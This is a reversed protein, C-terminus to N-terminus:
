HSNVFNIAYQADTYFENAKLADQFATLAAAKDGKRYLAWGRWLLNEESNPTIKLAYETLALLDDNRNTKFYAIFPGFQYRLMRQPLNKERATDYAKAAEHYREFYVLNTGYNFWAFGDNITETEAKATELALRRSEDEDWRAGMISKVTEEQDPRYVVIFVRNFSRWEADVKDYTAKINPGFWADQTTFIKKEDNYGTLLLYHGSWRDDGPWYSEDFSSSKEIMIPIGAAIFAKLLDITGGVRYETKLWGAQTRTFYLLEDVNVNRDQLIPKILKTIDYQTGTWGYFRLYMGLTDPGCNNQDQKEYEPAPLEAQPPLPTPTPTITPTFTITPTPEGAPLATPSPAATPTEEPHHPKSDKGREKYILRPPPLATPMQGAPNTVGRYYASIEEIKWNVISNVSPVQYILFAALALVLITGGLLLPWNIKFGAPLTIRVGFRSFVIQQNNNEVPLSESPTLNEDEMHYISQRAATCAYAPFSQQAAAFKIKLIRHRNENAPFAFM